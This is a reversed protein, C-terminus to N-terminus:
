PRQLLQLLFKLYLLLESHKKNWIEISNIFGWNYKEFFMYYLYQALGRGKSVELNADILLFEAGGQGWQWYGRGQDETFLLPLNDTKLERGNGNWTKERQSHCREGKGIFLFFIWLLNYDVNHLFYSQFLSLSNLLM